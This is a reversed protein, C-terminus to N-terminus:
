KEELQLWMLCHGEVPTFSIGLGSVLNRTIHCLRPPKYDGYKYTKVLDRLDEGQLVAKEYAEGDLVLVCLQPGSLKIKRSVKNVYCPFVTFGYWITSIFQIKTLLNMRGWSSSCWRCFLQKSGVAQWWESPWWPRGVGSVGCKKYHSGPSGEGGAFSIWLVAGRRKYSCVSTPGVAECTRPLIFCFVVTKYLRKQAWQVLAQLSLTGGDDTIVM